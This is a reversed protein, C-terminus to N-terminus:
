TLYGSPLDKRNLGPKWTEPDVEQPSKDFLFQFTQSFLMM